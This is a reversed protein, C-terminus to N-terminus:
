KEKSGPTPRSFLYGAAQQYKSRRKYDDDTPERGLRRLDCNDSLDAMKVTKALENSAVRDLYADYSEGKRKTLADVAETVRPGFDYAIAELTYDSDEVVDHLLAVIREDDSEMALMVRLPHLIYPAGGKDVQGAHADTALMIAAELGPRTTM